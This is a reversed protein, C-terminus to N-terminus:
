HNHRDRAVLIATTLLLCIVAYGALTGWLQLV